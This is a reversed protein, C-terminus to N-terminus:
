QNLNYYLLHHNTLKYCSGRYIYIQCKQDIMMRRLKINNKLILGCRGCHIHNDSEYQPCKYFIKNIRHACNFIYTDHKMFLTKSKILDDKILYKFKTFISLLIDTNLGFKLNLLWIKHFWGDLVEM